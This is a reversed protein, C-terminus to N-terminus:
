LPVLILYELISYKIHSEIFVQILQGAKSLGMESLLLTFVEIIETKLIVWYAAM